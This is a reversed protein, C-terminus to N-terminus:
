SSVEKIIRKFENDLTVVRDNIEKLSIRWRTLDSVIADKNAEESMKEAKLM